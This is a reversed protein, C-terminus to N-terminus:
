PAIYLSFPAMNGKFLLVLSIEDSSSHPSLEEKIRPNKAHSSIFHAYLWDCLATSKARFEKPPIILLWFTCRSSACMNHERCVHKGHHLRWSREWRITKRKDKVSSLSHLVPPWLEPWCQATGPLSPLSHLQCKQDDLTSSPTQFYFLSVGAGHVWNQM